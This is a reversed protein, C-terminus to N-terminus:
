RVAAGLAGPGRAEGALPVALRLDHGSGSLPRVVTSSGPFVVVPLCSM